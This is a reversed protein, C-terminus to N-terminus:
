EIMQISREKLDSKEKRWERLIAKEKQKAYKKATVYRVLLDIDVRTLKPFELHCRQMYQERGKGSIM